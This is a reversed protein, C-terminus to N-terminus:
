LGKLSFVLRIMYYILSFCYHYILNPFTQSFSEVNKKHVGQALVSPSILCQHLHVILPPSLLAM